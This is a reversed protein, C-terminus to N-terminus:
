SYEKCRRLRVIEQVCVCVSRVCRSSTKHTCQFAPQAYSVTQTDPNPVCVTCLACAGAAQRMAKAARDISAASSRRGQVKSSSASSSTTTTAMSALPAPARPTPTSSAASSSNTSTSQSHHQHTRRSALISQSSTSVNPSSKPSESSILSVAAPSQARDISAPTAAATPTSPRRMGLPGGGVPRILVPRNHQAHVHAHARPVRTQPVNQYASSRSHSQPTLPSYVPSYVASLSGTQSSSETHIDPPATMGRSRYYAASRRATASAAPNTRNPGNSFSSSRTPPMSPPLQSRTPPRSPQSLVPTRRSAALSPNPIEEVDSDSDSAQPARPRARASYTYTSGRMLDKLSKQTASSNSTPSPLSNTVGPGAAHLVPPTTARSSVSGAHPSGSPEMMLDKLSKNPDGSLNRRTPPANAAPHRTVAPEIVYGRGGNPLPGAHPPVATRSSVPIRTNHANSRTPPRQPRIVPYRPASSSVSHACGSTSHQPLSATLPPKASTVHNQRLPAAFGDTDDDIVIPHAAAHERMRRKQQVALEAATKAEGSASVAGGLDSNQKKQKQPSRKRKKPSASKSEDSTKQKKKKKKPSPSPSTTPIPMPEYQPTTPM